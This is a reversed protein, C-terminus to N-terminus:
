KLTLLPELIAKTNNKPSNVLSSLPYAEMKKAPYPAMLKLAQDVTTKESLWKNEHKQELIVPMRDHIPELLTNSTTTIISCSTVTKKEKKWVEWISAFAFPKFGKLGIRYPIKTGKAKKWEYFTDAIILCRRSKFANRFSPKEAVSEARANIMKYGIKEDTAWHPVFGWRAQSLASRNEGTIMVIEQGPAINYRAMEVISVDDVNVRDQLIKEDVQILAIRGCMAVHL